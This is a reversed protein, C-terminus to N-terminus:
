TTKAAGDLVDSVTLSTNAVNTNLVDLVAADVTHEHEVYFFNAYKKTGRTLRGEAQYNLVQSWAAGIFYGNQPSLLDFSEAFPITCLLWSERKDSHRSFRDIEIKIDSDSMGGQLVTVKAKFGELWDKWFPFQEKFDSFIVNHPIPAQDLAHERVAEIADGIGLLPNILKPCVLLKRVATFKALTGPALLPAAGPLALVADSWIKQYIKRVTNNLPITLRQRNRKPVYGELESLPINFIYPAIRFRLERLTSEKVGVIKKGYGDDEIVCYRGVFEWYSSFANPQVMNLITWYDEPGKAQLTASLFFRKKGRVIRKMAKYTLRQRNKARHCEDAIVFDIGSRHHEIHAVDKIITQYLCVIVDLGENADPESTWLMLRKRPNWKRVITHKIGMRLLEREWAILASYRPVCILLRKWGLRRAARLAIFTKGCGTPGRVIGKGNEVLLNIVRTQYPREEMDM